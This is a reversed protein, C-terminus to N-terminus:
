RKFFDVYLALVLALGSFLFIFFYNITDKKSSLRCLITGLIQYDHKSLPKEYLLKETMNSKSLEKHLAQDYKFKYIFFVFFGGVGVYWFVKAVVPNFDLVVNVARIAITAILAVFFFVWSRVPEKCQKSEFCDYCIFDKAKKNNSSNEM